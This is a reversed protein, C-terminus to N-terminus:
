RGRARVLRAEALRAAALARTRDLEAQLLALEADLVETSTAVGAQYREGLVRHTEAASRIGEAAADIAARASELELERQEIEFTVQRDFEAIRAQAARTAAAAEAQGAKRRGGDWLTWTLNVGLDWSNEWRDDRPFIRPNPRAYDYGGAAGVQPRATARAADERAESAALRRELATREPRQASTTQGGTQPLSPPPPHDSARDAAPKVSTSRDATAKASTSRDATAKASTSPSGGQEGYGPRLPVAPILPGPTGTLRRLDAESILRQNRAEIQLLQQRSRQAESATVDSPSILGQDLRSRLDRLHADARELARAVVQETERATVLAWFARAAELRLDARAAELDGATAEHEARAARTLADVRGGNYISWQLDLRSRYNDPVDPYLVRLPQGPQFIAYPDVHNTRLYGVVAAVTPWREADRATEAAAAGAQRAELEAVRASHKLTREIAEELTLTEQARVSGCWLLVCLGISTQRKGRM